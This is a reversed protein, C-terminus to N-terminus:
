HSLIKSAKETFDKYLSKSKQDSVRPFINRRKKNKDYINISLGKQKKKDDPNISGLAIKNIKFKFIRKSFLENSISVTLIHSIKDLRIVKDNFIFFYSLVTPIYALLTLEIVVSLDLGVVFFLILAYIINYIAPLYVFLFRNHLIYFGLYQDNEYIKKRALREFM